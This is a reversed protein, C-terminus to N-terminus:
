NAFQNLLKTIQLNNKYITKHEYMNLDIPIFIM